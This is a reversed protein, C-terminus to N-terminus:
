IGSLFKSNDYNTSMKFRHLMFLILVRKLSLLLKYLHKPLNYRLEFYFKIHFGLCTNKKKKLKDLFNNLEGKM